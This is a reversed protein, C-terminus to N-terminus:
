TSNGNGQDLDAEKGKKMTWAATMLEDVVMSHEGDILGPLRVHNV